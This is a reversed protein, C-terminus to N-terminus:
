NIKFQIIVIFFTIITNFISPILSREITYFKGAFFTPQCRKIGKLSYKQSNTGKVFHKIRALANLIQDFEKLIQDCLLFLRITSITLYRIARKNQKEDQPLNNMTQNKNLHFYDILNLHICRKVTTLCFNMRNKKFIYIECFIASLCLFHLLFRWRDCFVSCFFYYNYFFICLFVEKFCFIRNGHCSM